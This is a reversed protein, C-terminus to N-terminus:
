FGMLKDTFKKYFVKWYLHGSTIWILLIWWKPFNFKYASFFFSIITLFFMVWISTIYIGYVILSADSLISMNKATKSQMILLGSLIPSFFGLSFVPFIVCCFLLLGIGIGFFHIFNVLCLMWFFLNFILFGFSYPLTRANYFGSLFQHFCTNLIILILISYFLFASM